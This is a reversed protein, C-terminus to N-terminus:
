ATTPVPFGIASTRPFVSAVRMVTSQLLLKGCCRLAGQVDRGVSRCGLAHALYDRARWRTLLETVPQNEPTKM